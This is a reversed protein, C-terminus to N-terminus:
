ILAGLVPGAIDAIPGGSALNTAFDFLQQEKSSFAAGGSSGSAAPARLGVVPDVYTLNYGRFRAAARDSAEVMRRLQENVNPPVGRTAVDIRYEEAFTADSCGVSAPDIAWGVIVGNVEVPAPTRALATAGRVVVWKVEKIGLQNPPIIVVETPNQAGAWAATPDNPTAATAVTPNTSGNPVSTTGGTGGSGTSGGPTGSAPVLTSKSYLWALVAPPIAAALYLMSTPDM